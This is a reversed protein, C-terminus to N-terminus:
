YNQYFISSNNNATTTYQIKYVSVVFPIMENKQSTSTTELGENVRESYCVDEEHENHDLCFTYYLLLTNKITGNQLVKV